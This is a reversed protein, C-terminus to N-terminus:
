AFDNEREIVLAVAAYERLTMPRRGEIKQQLMKADLDLDLERELGDVDLIASSMGLMLSDRVELKVSEADPWDATAGLITCADDLSLAPRDGDVLSELADADLGTREVATEVGMSAVEAALADLYEDYLDAATVGEPDAIPDLLM